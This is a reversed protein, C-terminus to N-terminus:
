IKENSNIQVDDNIFSFPDPGKSKIQFMSFHYNTSYFALKKNGFMQLLKNMEENFHSTNLDSLLEGLLSNSEDNLSKQFSLYISKSACPNM